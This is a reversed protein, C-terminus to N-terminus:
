PASFSVLRLFLTPHSILLTIAFSYPLPRTPSEFLPIPAYRALLFLLKARIRLARLGFGDVSRLALMTLGHSLNIRLAERAVGACRAADGEEMAQSASQRLRSAARLPVQAHHTIADYFWHVLRLEQHRLLPMLNVEAQLLIPLQLWLKYESCPM